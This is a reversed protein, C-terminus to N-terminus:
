WNCAETTITFSPPVPLGANTMEALGAGKGGLLDRMDKNGEKSLYVWKHTAATQSKARASSGRKGKSATKSQASGKGNMGSRITKRSSTKNTKVPMSSGGM